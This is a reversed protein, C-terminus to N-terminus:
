GHSGERPVPIASAADGLIRVIEGIVHRLAREGLAMSGMPHSM